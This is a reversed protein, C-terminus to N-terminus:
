LEILSIFLISVEGQLSLPPIYDQEAYETVGSSSTQFIIQLFFSFLYQSYIHLTDLSHYKICM